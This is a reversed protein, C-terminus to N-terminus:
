INSLNHLMSKEYDIMGLVYDKDEYSAVIIYNGTQNVSLSSTIAAHGTLTVTVDSTADLEDNKEVKFLYM